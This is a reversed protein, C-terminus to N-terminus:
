IVIVLGSSALLKQLFVKPEIERECNRKTASEQNRKINNKVEKINCLWLQSAVKAFFVNQEIERECNKITASEQNRKINNKVEKINGLWLQSAVKAFFFKKSL